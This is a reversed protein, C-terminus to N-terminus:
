ERERVRERMRDLRVQREFNGVIDELQMALDALIYLERRPKPVVRRRKRKGPTM